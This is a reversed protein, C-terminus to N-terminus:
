DELRYVDVAKQGSIHQKGRYIVSCNSLQMCISDVLNFAYNCTGLKAGNVDFIDTPADYANISATYVSDNGYICVEIQGGKVKQYIDQLVNRKNRYVASEKQPCSCLFLVIFLLLINKTM